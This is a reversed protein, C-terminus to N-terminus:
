KKKKKEVNGFKHGGITTTPVWRTTDKNLSWDPQNKTGDLYSAYYYQAGGTIDALTDISNVISIANKMQSHTNYKNYVNQLTEGGENYTNWMSFQKRALAQDAVTSGANRHNSDARNKLVNAVATMGKVPDTEGGAEGLLTCVIIKQNKTLGNFLRLAEDKKVTESSITTNKTPTTTNTKPTVETTELKEVTKKGIITGEVVSPEWLKKVASVTKDGYYGNYSKTDLLGKTQLMKQIQVIASNESSNCYGKSITSGSKVQELTILKNEKVGEPCPNTTEEIILRYQSETIIIKM